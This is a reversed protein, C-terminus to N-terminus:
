LWVASDSASVAVLSNNSIGSEVSKYIYHLEVKRGQLVCSMVWELSAAWFAFGDGRLWALYSKENHM